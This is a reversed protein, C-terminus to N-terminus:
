RKDSRRLTHTFVHTKPSDTISRICWAITFTPIFDTFPLAEEVFDLIGGFLGFRGGFFKYFILASVPAWIIDSLEGLGPIAFSAYGIIDMIICIVLGPIKKKNMKITFLNIM